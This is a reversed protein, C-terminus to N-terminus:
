THIAELRLGGTALEDILSDVRQVEQNGTIRVASDERRREVEEEALAKAAANDRDSLGCVQRELDAIRDEITADDSAPPRGASSGAHAHSSPGGNQDPRRLRLRVMLREM